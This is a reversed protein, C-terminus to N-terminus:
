YIFEHKKFPPTLIFLVSCAGTLSIMAIKIIQVNEIPKVSYTTIPINVEMEFSRETGIEDVPKNTVAYAPLTQRVPGITVMNDTFIGRFGTNIPKILTNTSDFASLKRAGFKVTKNIELIRDAEM